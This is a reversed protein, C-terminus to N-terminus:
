VASRGVADHPEPSRYPWADAPPEALVATVTVSEGQDAIPQTTDVRLLDVSAHEPLDVSEACM